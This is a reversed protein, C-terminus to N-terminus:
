PIPFIGQVYDIAGSSSVSAFMRQQDLESLLSNAALFPNNQLVTHFAQLLLHM